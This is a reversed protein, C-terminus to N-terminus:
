YVLGQHDPQHLEDPNYPMEILANGDIKWTWSIIQIALCSETLPDGSCGTTGSGGNIQVDAKPAYITGSLFTSAQGGLKIVESAGSASGDQWLLMGSRPCLNYGPMLNTCDPTFGDAATGPLGRVRFAQNATFTIDDQCQIGITPCGPGDTSFIMVRSPNGSGDDVAEISSSSGSLKIGGGALIYMGPELVVSVNSAVNWGGYYVGPLLHCVTEGSVDPCPPSSGNGSLECATTSTETSITGDPCTADPFGSLGPEPLFALPDGLAVSGEELCPSADICHLGDSPDSGQVTCSGVVSAFTTELRGSIHLGSSGVGNDCVDDTSGGCPSNVHVMGGSGAPVGTAPFIRVTGGGSIQGSAGATCDPKLAVLSASNANGATNAAVAGTAVTAEAAGFIRGFFYPHTDRIIVQVHGPQGSHPGSIPPSAVLLNDNLLADSCGPDDQFFGNQQAYFCADADAAGQDWTPEGMADRLHRAAAISAPDAANQEQRHLMWSFGLDIALAAIGLLVVLGVAVVILIQGRESGDHSNTRM